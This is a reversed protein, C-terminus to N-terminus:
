KPKVIIRRNEGEGESESSVDSREALEMHVVRREASSMPDLEKPKKLLAVEDAATRALERLYQEKSKKYDNIDVSLYFQEQVKKKLIFKLIHQIEALAQGRDGIFLQPEATHISISVANEEGAEM